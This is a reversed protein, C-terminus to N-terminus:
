FGPQWIAAKAPRASLGSGFVGSSKGGKIKWNCRLIKEGLM